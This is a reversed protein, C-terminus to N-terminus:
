ESTTDEDIESEGTSTAPDVARPREQEPETFDHQRMYDLLYGQIELRAMRINFTKSDEVPYGTWIESYVEKIIEDSLVPLLELLRDVGLPTELDFHYLSKNVPEVYLLPIVAETIIDNEFIPVSYVKNLDTISKSIDFEKYPFSHEYGGPHSVFGNGGQRTCDHGGGYPCHEFKM